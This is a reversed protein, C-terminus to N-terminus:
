RYFPSFFSINEKEVSILLVSTHVDSVISLWELNKLYITCMNNKNSVCSFPHLNTIARFSCEFIIIQSIQKNLKYLNWRFGACLLRFSNGPIEMMLGNVPM